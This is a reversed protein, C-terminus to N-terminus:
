PPMGSPPTQQNRIEVLELKTPLTGALVGVMQPLGEAPGTLLMKGDSIVTQVVPESCLKDDVYLELKQGKLRRTVGELRRAGQATTVFLFAPGTASPTISVELFDSHGM